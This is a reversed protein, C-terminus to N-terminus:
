PSIQGRAQPKQQPAAPPHRASSHCLATAPLPRIRAHVHVCLPMNYIQAGNTGATNALVMMCEQGCFGLQPMRKDRLVHGLRTHICPASHTQHRLPIPFATLNLVINYQTKRHTPFASQTQRIVCSTRIVLAIACQKHPVFLM